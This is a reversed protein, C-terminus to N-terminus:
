SNGLITIGQVKQRLESATLKLCLNVLLNFEKFLLPKVITRGDASPM